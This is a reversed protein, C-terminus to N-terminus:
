NNNQKYVATLAGASTELCALSQFRKTQLPATDKYSVCKGPFGCINFDCFIRINSGNTKLNQKFGKSFCVLIDTLVPFFSESSRIFFNGATWANRYLVQPDPSVATIDSLLVSPIGPLLPWLQNQFHSVLEDRWWIVDPLWTSTLFASIKQYFTSTGQLHEAIQLSHNFVKTITESVRDTGQVQLLEEETWPWALSWNWVAARLNELGVGPPVGQVEWVGVGRM